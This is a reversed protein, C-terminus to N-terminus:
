RAEDPDGCIEVIIANSNSFSERLCEIVKLTDRSKPSKRLLPASEPSGIQILGKSSLSAIANGDFQYEISGESNQLKLKTCSKPTDCRIRPTHLSTEHSNRAAAPTHENSKRSLGSDNLNEATVNRMPSM